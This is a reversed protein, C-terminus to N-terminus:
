SHRPWLLPFDSGRVPEGEKLGSDIKAYAFPRNVWVADDGNMRNSYVRRRTGHTTNPGAKHLTMLHHFVVDGPKIDFIVTPYRDPNGDVDPMPGDFVNGPHDSDPLTFMKGWRHSGVAYTMAGSVKNAPDLAIWTACNDMGDLYCYGQDQHWPTPEPAQPEKVFITDNYFRVERSGMIAAAAEAVPSNYIFDRFGEFRKSLQTELIYTRNPKAPRAPNEIAVEVWQRLHEVDKSKLLGRICAVGNEAFAQTLEPGLSTFELPASVMDM